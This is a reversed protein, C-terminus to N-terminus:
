LRIVGMGYFGPRNHWYLGEAECYDGLARAVPGTPGYLQVNPPEWETDHLLVFGGSEVRPVYLRLEALTHEYDHSTDIFLVNFKDPLWDQARQSVDNAQLFHWYGLAHWQAPVAPMEIDVSWLGGFVEPPRTDGTVYAHREVAALLASTSNGSRVGLEVLNGYGLATKHLFELHGQIDCWPGNLRAQYDEYATM